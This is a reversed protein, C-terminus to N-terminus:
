GKLSRIYAIIDTIQQDNFTGGFAPMAGEKGHKVRFRIFSDSRATDELKPGKGAVRGAEAHCWGCGAQEFFKQGQAADGVATKAAEAPAPSAPSQSASPQTQTSNGEMQTQGHVSAVGAAALLGALAFGVSKGFSM